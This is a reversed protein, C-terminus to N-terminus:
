WPVVLSRILNKLSQFRTGLFWGSRSTGVLSWALSQFPVKKFASGNIEIWALNVHLSWGSCIWIHLINQIDKQFLKSLNSFSSPGVSIFTCFIFLLRQISNLCKWYFQLFAISSECSTLPIDDSSPSANCVDSRIKTGQLFSLPNFRLLFIKWTYPGKKVSHLLHGGETSMPQQHTCAGFYFVCLRQYAIFIGCLKMRKLHLYLCVSLCSEKKVLIINRNWAGEKSVQM